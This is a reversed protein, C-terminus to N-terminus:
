LRVGTTDLILLINTRKIPPLLQLSSILIGSLHITLTWGEETSSVKMVILLTLYQGCGNM